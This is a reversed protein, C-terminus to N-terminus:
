MAGALTLRAEAEDDCTEVGMVRRRTREIRVAAAGFLAIDDPSAGARRFRAAVEAHDSLDADAIAARMRSVIEDCAIYPSVM